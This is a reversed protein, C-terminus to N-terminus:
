GGEWGQMDSWCGGGIAKVCEQKSVWELGKLPIETAVLFIESSRVQECCKWGGGSAIVLERRERRVLKGSDEARCDSRSKQIGLGDKQKAKERLSRM